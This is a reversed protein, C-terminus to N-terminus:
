AESEGARPPEYGAFEELLVEAVWKATTGVVAPCDHQKAKGVDKCLVSGYDEKFRRYVRRILEHALGTSGRFHETERTRGGCLYGIVMGAGTFSGCNQTGDPTAGGDLCSAARFVDEDAALFPIADQLAAVTCQACGGHRKEYQHGLDYARRIVEEDAQSLNVRDGRGLVKPAEAEDANSCLSSAVTVGAAASTMSFLRRRSIRDTRAPKDKPQRTM